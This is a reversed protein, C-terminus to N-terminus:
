LGLSDALTTILPGSATAPDLKLKSLLFPLTFGILSGITVILIMTSSVVFAIEMGGRYYGIFSVAFAMSLGLGISVFIEKVFMKGLDKFEVDGTALARIMLTSSQSGANGASDILLPLFFVLAINRALVDEFFAIGAGSFINGFVLVILWFVRKKYLTLFSAKSINGEINEISANKLFDETLEDEVVEIAEENTVVGIMRNNSDVVPISNVDYKSLKLATEEKSDTEKATIIQKDYDILKSINTNPTALLLDKLSIIGLIKKNKNLVYIENINEKDKAKIRLLNIAQKVNIDNIVYVYDLSMISGTDEEEYSSIDILDRVKTNIILSKINDKREDDIERYIDASDILNMLNLLDAVENDKMLSILSLQLDKEFYSFIEAKKKIELSNLKRLILDKKLDSLSVAVDLPHRRKVYFSFNNNAFSNKFVKKSFFNFLFFNYSM